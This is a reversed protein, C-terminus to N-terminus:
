SIKMMNQKVRTENYINQNGKRTKKKIFCIYINLFMFSKLKNIKGYHCVKNGESKQIKRICKNM